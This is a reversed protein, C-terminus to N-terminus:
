GRVNGTSGPPKPPHRLLLVVAIALLVAVGGYETLLLPIPGYPYVALRWAFRLLEYLSGLVALWWAWPRGRWLGWAAALAGATVLWIRPHTVATMLSQITATRTPALWLLLSAVILVAAIRASEHGASLAATDSARSKLAVFVPIAFFGLLTVVAGIVIPPDSTNGSWGRGIDSLFFLVIAQLAVCLAAVSAFAIVPGRRQAAHWGIALIVLALLAGGSYLSVLSLLREIPM